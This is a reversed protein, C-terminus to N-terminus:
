INLLAQAAAKLDRTELGETFRFFVGSLVEKAAECSDPSAGTRYMVLAVSLEWSLAGQERACDMAQTLVDAATAQEGPDLALLVEARTKLLDPFSFLGGTQQALDIAESIAALAGSHDGCERRAEALAQLADTRLFSLTPPPLTALCLQLHGVAAPFDKQHLVLLGKLFHVVQHRVAVKYDQAVNELERALEEAQDIAANALLIAFCLTGCLCFSDPHVRSASIASNALQLAQAPMGRLWMVRARGLTALTQQKDEFYRLPRMAQAALLGAAALYHEEAALQNGSFHWSAGEMWRAIVAEGPGGQDGAAAGYHESVELSASMRGLAILALHQAALFHFTLHSIELRRALALGRDVVPLLPGDYEGGSYYAIALSELLGLELPTTRHQDPLSELARECWRKCELLLGLELFVPAALSSMETALAPDRGSSFSWELAARVNDMSPMPIPRGIATASQGDAYDRLQQAYYLAHRLAIKNQRRQKVLRAAAFARTTELLRFWTEDGVSHVAVLSKDVLDRIAEEVAFADIQDNAAVAVAAELSFGGCFVSLRHLTEQDKPSLLHHSWDIMAEVTQHRPADDRRGQWHLAFQKDLLNAVGQIGYVGVRSAVLGIAHPNGDLRRCLEAVVPAEDDDLSKSAGSEKAREVFLRIAPWTMAQRAGLHEGDAPFALPQLLYVTEDKIRLAERSTALFSVGPASLRIRRCLDAVAALVHECNDLVILTRKISLVELLESLLDAGSPRYGVALALAELVRDPGDVTSLDVFFIAEGFDDVAHAVLVALTTKGAGGAGVVTVLPRGPILKLLESVNKERGIASGLPAPIHALLRHATDSQPAPSPSATTPLPESGDVEEVKAVFCYGRGAVSAIYRVDGVGCGLAQRVNAIQVRVNSDAVVLGPWAAATLERQTMVRGQSAVLATLLDFARSGLSVEVGEKRLVRIGPYLCFPGFVFAVSM